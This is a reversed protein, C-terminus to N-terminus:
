DSQGTSVHYTGQSGTLTASGSTVVVSDDFDSNYDTDDEYESDLYYDVEVVSTETVVSLDTLGLNIDTCPTYRDSTSGTSSFEITYEGVGDGNTDGICTTEVTYGATLVCAALFASSLLSSSKLLLHMNNM